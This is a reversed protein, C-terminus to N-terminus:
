FPSIVPDFPFRSCSFLSNSSYFLFATESRLSAEPATEFNSSALIKILRSRSFSSVKRSAAFALYYCFSDFRGGSFLLGCSPMMSCFSFSVSLIALSYGAALALYLPSSSDFYFSIYSFNDAISSFSAFTNAWSSSYSMNSSSNVSM